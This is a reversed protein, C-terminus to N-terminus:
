RYFCCAFWGNRGRAVGVEVLQRQGYYCCSRIAEDASRSSFGVGEYRGGGFGGGVHRMRGEAAQQQAKRQALGAHCVPAPTAVQCCAVPKPEIKVVEAVAELTNGVVQSAGVVIKKVPGGYACQGDECLQASALGGCMSAVLFLLGFCVNKRM